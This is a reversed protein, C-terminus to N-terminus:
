KRRRALKQLDKEGGDTPSPTRGFRRSPKPLSPKVPEALLILAKKLWRNCEDNLDRSEQAAEEDEMEGLLDLSHFHDNRVDEAALVLGHLIEREKANM